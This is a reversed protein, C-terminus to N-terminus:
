GRISTELERTGLKARITDTYSRADGDPEVTLTLFTSIPQGSRREEELVDALLDRHSIEANPSLSTGTHLLVVHRAKTIWADNDSPWFGYPVLWHGIEQDQLSDEQEVSRVVIKERNDELGHVKGQADTWFDSFVMFNLEACLQELAVNVTSAGRLRLLHPFNIRGILHASDHRFDHDPDFLCKELLDLFDEDAPLHSAREPFEFMDRISSMAEERVSASLAEDALMRRFLEFARADRAESLPRAVAHFLFKNNMFHNPQDIDHMARYAKEARDLYLGLLRSKQGGRIRSADIQAVLRIEDADFSEFNAAAWAMFLSGAPRGRSAALSLSQLIEKRRDSRKLEEVVDAEPLMGSKIREKRVDALFEASRADAEVKDLLLRATGASLNAAQSLLPRMIGRPEALEAELLQAFHVDAEEGCIEALLELARDILDPPDLPAWDIVRRIFDAFEPRPAAETFALIRAAEESFLDCQRGKEALIQRERPTAVESFGQASAVALRQDTGYFIDRFMQASRATRAQALTRFPSTDDNGFGTWTQGPYTQGEFEEPFENEFTSLDEELEALEGAFDLELYNPDLQALAYNAATVAQDFSQHRLYSLDECLDAGIWRRTDEIGADAFIEALLILSYGNIDREAYITRALEAFEDHRGLHALMAGYARFPARWAPAFRLPLNSSLPHELMQRAILNEQLSLHLFHLDSVEVSWSSLLRAPLIQRQLDVEIGNQTAHREWDDKTFIQRPAPPSKYLWYCFQSLAKWCAEDLIDNASNSGSRAQETIKSFLSEYVGARTQPLATGHALTKLFCLATLLFPNEAMQRLSHTNFIESKFAAAFEAGRKTNLAWNEILVEIAEEDLPAVSLRRSEGCNRIFGAPRCTAIWVLVSSLNQLEGYVREVAEPDGAIEDLGDVLLVIEPIAGRRVQDALAEENGSGIDFGAISTRVAFRVLDDDRGTRWADRYRRVEVFLSARFATWRGNAIDLAIRRLLSSKGTGPGGFIVACGAGPQDLFYDPARQSKQRRQLERVALRDAISQAPELVEPQPRAIRALNLSLEVYATAIPLQETTGFLSPLRTIVQNALMAQNLGSLLGSTDARAVYKEPFSVLGGINHLVLSSGAPKTERLQSLDVIQQGSINGGLRKAEKDLWAIDDGSLPDLTFLLTRNINCKQGAAVESVVRVCSKEISGSVRRQTVASSLFCVICDADELEADLRAEWPAGSEIVHIRGGFGSPDVGFDQPRDFFVEYRTRLLVEKAYDWVRPKDESFHSFFVKKMPSNQPM